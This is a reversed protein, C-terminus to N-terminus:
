PHQWVDTRYTASSLSASSGSFNCFQVRVSNVTSV